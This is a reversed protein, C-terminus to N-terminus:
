SEDEAEHYLRPDDPEIGASALAEDTDAERVRGRARAKATSRGTRTMGSDALAQDLLNSVSDWTSAAGEGIIQGSPGDVLLFYPSVPIGYDTWAESSMLVTM